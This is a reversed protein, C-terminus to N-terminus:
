VNLICYVACLTELYHVGHHLSFNQSWSINSPGYEHLLDESKLRYIPCPILPKKQKTKKVTGTFMQPSGSEM